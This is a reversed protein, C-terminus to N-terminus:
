FPLGDSPITKHMNFLLQEYECLKSLWECYTFSRLARYRNLVSDKFDGPSLKFYVVLTHMAGAYTHLYGRLLEVDEFHFRESYGALFCEEAAEAIRLFREIQKKM